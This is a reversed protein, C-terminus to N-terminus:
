TVFLTAPATHSLTGSTGTITLARTGARARYSRVTLTSVGASIPSFSATV